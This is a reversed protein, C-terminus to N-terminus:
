WLGSLQPQHHCSVPTTLISIHYRYFAYQRKKKDAILCGQYTHAYVGQAWATGIYDETGTGALTSFETDGDLYLKVEGEGFWTDGYSKDETLSM